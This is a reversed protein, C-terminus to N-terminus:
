KHIAIKHTDLTAEQIAESLSPHPHVADGIETASADLYMADSMEAIMDTAHAGIISVGIIDDTIVDRLVEVFGATDGLIIAKANANFYFEFCSCSCLWCIFYITKFKDLSPYRATQRTLEQLILSFEIIERQLETVWPMEIKGLFSHIARQRDSSEQSYM